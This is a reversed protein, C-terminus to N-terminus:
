HTEIFEKARLIKIRGFKGLGLVHTDDSVIFEAKAALACELM